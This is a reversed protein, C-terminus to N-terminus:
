GLSLSQKRSLLSFATLLSLGRRCLLLRPFGDSIPRPRTSIQSPSPVRGRGRPHLCITIHDRTIIYGHLQEEM